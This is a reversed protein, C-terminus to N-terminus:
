CYLEAIVLFMLYICFKATRKQHIKVRKRKREINRMIVSM